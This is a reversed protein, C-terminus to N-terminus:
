RGRETERAEIAARQRVVDLVYHERQLGVSRDILDRSDISGVDEIRKGVEPSRM